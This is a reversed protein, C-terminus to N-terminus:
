DSGDEELYSDILARTVADRTVVIARVVIAALNEKSRLEDIYEEFAEFGKDVFIDEADAVHQLIEPEDM